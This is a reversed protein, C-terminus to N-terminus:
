AVGMGSRRQFYDQIQGMVDEIDREMAQRKAMQQMKKHQIFAMEDPLVQVPTQQGDPTERMTSEINERLGQDLDESMHSPLSVDSHDDWKNTTLQKRIPIDSGYLLAKILAEIDETHEATTSRNSRAPNHFASLPQLGNDHVLHKRILVRKMLKSIENHDRNGIRNHGKKRSKVGVQQVSIVTDSDGRACHKRITTTNLRRVKSVAFINSDENNKHSDLPEPRHTVVENFFIKRFPPNDVFDRRFFQCTKKVGYRRVKSEKVNIREKSINIPNTDRATEDLTGSGACVAVPVSGTIQPSITRTGRSLPLHLTGRVKSKTSEDRSNSSNSSRGRYHIDKLSRSMAKTSFSGQFPMTPVSLSSITPRTISHVAIKSKRPTFSSHDLPRSSNPSSSRTPMYLKDNQSLIPPRENVSTSPDMGLSKIGDKPLSRLDSGDAKRPEHLREASDHEIEMRGKQVEEERKTLEACEVEKGMSKTKVTIKRGVSNADWSVDPHRCQYLTDLHRWHRMIGSITRHYNPLTMRDLSIWLSNCFEYYHLLSRNFPEHRIERATNLLSLPLTMQYACLVLWNRVLMLYRTPVDLLSDILSLSVEHRESLWLDRLWSRLLRMREVYPSVLTYYTRRCWVEKGDTEFQQGAIFWGAYNQVYPLALDMRTPAKQLAHLPHPDPFLAIDLETHITKISSEIEVLHGILEERHRQVSEPLYPYEECALHPSGCFVFYFAVLRYMGISFPSHNQLLTSSDGSAKSLSFIAHRLEANHLRCQCLLQLTRSRLGGLHLRSFFSKKFCKSCERAHSAFAVFDKRTIPSHKAIRSPADSNKNSSLGTPERKPEGKFEGKTQKSLPEVYGYRGNVYALCTTPKEAQLDYSKEVIAEVKGFIVVHDGIQVTKQPMYLCPICFAVPDRISHSRSLVPPFTSSTLEPGEEMAFAEKKAEDLRSAPHGAAFRSALEAGRVDAKLMHIDFRYSSLIADYTTSPLKLNLSVVVEPEFTVTTFSSVTAGRRAQRSEKVDTATIIAVSQPVRRMCHRMREKIISQSSDGKSYPRIGSNQNKGQQDFAPIQRIPSTKANTRRGSHKGCEQPTTSDPISSLSRWQVPSIGSVHRERDFAGIDELDPGQDSQLRCALKHRDALMVISNKGNFSHFARRSTLGSDVHGDNWFSHPVEMRTKTTKEQRAPRRIAHTRQSHYSSPHLPRFLKVSDHALLEPSVNGPTM